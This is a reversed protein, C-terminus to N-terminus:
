RDSGGSKSRLSCPCEPRRRCKEWLDIHFEFHAGGRFGHGNGGLNRLELGVAGIHAQYQVFLCNRVQRIRAAVEGAEFQQNWSGLHHTPRLVSRFVRLAAGSDLNVSLVERSNRVFQVSSGVLVGDQTLDDDIRREICHRFSLDRSLVIIGLETLRHRGYNRGLGLRACVANVTVQKVVPSSIGGLRPIWVVLERWVWHRATKKGGAFYLWNPPKLRPGSGFSCPMKRRPSDPCEASEPIKRLRSRASQM